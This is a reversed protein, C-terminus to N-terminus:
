AIPDCGDLPRRVTAARAVCVKSYNHVLGVRSPPGVGPWTQWRAAPRDLEAALAVWCSALDLLAQRYAPEEGAALGLVVM